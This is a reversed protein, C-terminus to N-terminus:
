VDKLSRLTNKFCKSCIYEEELMLKGEFQFGVSKLFYEFEQLVEVLSDTTFEKTSVKNFDGYWDMDHVFKYNNKM